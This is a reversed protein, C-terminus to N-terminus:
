RGGRGQFKPKPFTLPAPLTVKYDRGGSLASKMKANKRRPLAEYKCGFYRFYNVLEKTSLKLERAMHFCSRMHFSECHLAMILIWLILTKDEKENRSYKTISTKTSPDVTTVTTTFQKLFYIFLIEPVEYKEALSAVDPYDTDPRIAGRIRKFKMLYDLLVLKSIVLRREQKDEFRTSLDNTLHRVFGSKPKWIDDTIEANEKTISRDYGKVLDRISAAENAPLITDFPFIEKAEDTEKNYPPLMTKKHKEEAAANTNSNNSNSSSSSSSSSSRSSRSTSSSGDSSNQISKKELKVQAMLYDKTGVNDETLINKKMRRLGAKSGQSGFGMTLEERQERYTFEQFAQQKPGDHNTKRVTQKLAHIRDGAYHLTVQKKKTNYVGVLYCSGTDDANAKRRKKAAKLGHGAIGHEADARWQMRKTTGILVEKTNSKGSPEGYLTWEAPKTKGASEGLLIGAAPPGSPFSTLIAGTENGLKFTVKTSKSKKSSKSSTSDTRQRKTKPM